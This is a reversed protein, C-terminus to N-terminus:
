LDGIPGGVLSYPPYNFPTLIISLTAVISGLTKEPLTLWVQELYALAASRSRTEIDSLGTRAKAAAITERLTKDSGM